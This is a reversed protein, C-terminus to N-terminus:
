KKFAFFRRRSHIAVHAILNQKKYFAEKIQIIKIFFQNSELLIKIKNLNNNRNLVYYTFILIIISTIGTPATYVTSTSNTVEFTVTKFTNIPLQAM